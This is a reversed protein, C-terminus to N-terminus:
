REAGERPPGGESPGAGAPGGWGQSVARVVGLSHAGGGASRTQGAASGERSEGLRPRPPVLRDFAEDRTLGRRLIRDFVNRPM